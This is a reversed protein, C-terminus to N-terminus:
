IHILSLGLEEGSFAQISTPIDQLSQVRKQSTVVIRELGSTDTTSPTNPAESQANVATSAVLTISLSNRIFRCLPTLQFHQTLPSLTFM